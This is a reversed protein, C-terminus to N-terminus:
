EYALVERITLRAASRAPLVSALMSLVLVMGLWILFGDASFVLNSPADFIALSVADAMIKSIPFALLTGLLWSIGGIIMGEVIVLSMLTRDSAGIARMIGFERTREMVNLSMTGMLGISGVLATLVAMFMLFTTLITLGKATVSRLNLGASIDSIKYGGHRLHAEIERGLAKQQEETLGQRVAVIRYMVAKGPQNTLESLYEYNTYALFGGSKGALQFFGVVVWDTEKGNIKLQITDGPSLDPFRSLFRESLVIANQDGPQIWRGKLLIPEVLKSGSPPALLNVSEGVSGDALVIESRATAWGEVKAVGPLDALEQQVREINQPRDLTLNVDALFYESLQGIYNLISTQVNFTSIFIAGGLTLTILTLLLRGKRRFTNRLSILLPRSLKRTHLVRQELWGNHVPASSENIGSIAEQATIRSGHLIPVFGALLPVVLAIAIQLIVTSLVLRHGLLTFNVRLALYELLGFAARDSLPSAVLFALVGFILILTVYIGVIQFRRAGYTKMIGIQMVQQNMLAALTNTILFGSLFVILFGLLTLIASIADVYISTPHDDSRGTVVNLITRNGGEVEDRVRGAVQDIWALDMGDGTVTAYLLNYGDPLGLWEQTDDSIYGQAPAVFYGGGLGNAGITLDHVVGVLRLQRTKGSPMEITLLDGIQSHTDALKNVDLVIEHDGPPWKGGQLHVQNIRMEDFDHISKLNIQIWTGPDTQVRLGASWVGEAEKVGDVHQVQDVLEQEFPPSASVQINAPNVAAYSARMDNSLVVYITAIVGIAFLGIAISAVVLLSRAKNSWLDSLVKRWRPRMM